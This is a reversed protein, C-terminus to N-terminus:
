LRSGCRVPYMLCQTETAHKQWPKLAFYYFWTAETEKDVDFVIM